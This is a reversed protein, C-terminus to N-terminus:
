LSKNPIVVSYYARYHNPLETALIFVLFLVKDIKKKKKKERVLILIELTFINVQVNKQWWAYGEFESKPFCKWGKRASLEEDQLM